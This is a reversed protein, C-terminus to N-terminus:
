PDTGKPVFRVYISIRPRGLDDFGTDSKAYQFEHTETPRLEPRRRVAHALLHPNCSTLAPHLRWAGNARRAMEAVQDWPINRRRM